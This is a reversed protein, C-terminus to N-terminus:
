NEVRHGAIEAQSSGPAVAAESIHYKTVLVMLAATLGLTCGGQPPAPM